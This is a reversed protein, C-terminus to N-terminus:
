HGSCCGPSSGPACITAPKSVVVYAQLLKVLTIDGTIIVAKGSNSIALVAPLQTVALRETTIAFEPDSASLTMTDVRGGANAKIYATAEALLNALTGTSDGGSGPLIMFIFNHDAFKAPLNKAWNLDAVSTPAAAGTGTTSAVQPVNGNVAPTSQATTSGVQPVTGNGIPTSSAASTRTVLSYTVAGVVLLMGLAFGGIKWWRSKSTKNSAKDNM